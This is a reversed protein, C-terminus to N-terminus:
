KEGGELSPINMWHTINHKALNECDMADYWDNIEFDYYAKWIYGFPNDSDTVLVYISTGSNDEDIPPLAEEVSIWQNKLAFAAGYTVAKSIKKGIPVRVKKDAPLAITDNAWAYRKAAEEIRKQLITNM